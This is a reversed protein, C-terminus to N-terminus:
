TPHSYPAQELEWKRKHYADANWYNAADKELDRKFSEEFWKQGRGHVLDHARDCLPVIKDDGVKRGMGGEIARYSQVHHPHSQNPRSYFCEHNKEDAILCPCKRVYALHGPSHVRPDVRIGMKPRKFRKVIM